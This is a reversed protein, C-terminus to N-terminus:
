ESSTDETEEESAEETEEVLEEEVATDEEKDGCGALLFALLVSRM